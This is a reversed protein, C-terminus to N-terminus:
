KLLKALRAEVTALREAQQQPAPLAKYLSVQEELAAKLASTNKQAELIDAKLTMLGAKRPGYALGLAREVAQLAEDERQLKHFTRALYHPPNYDKPLAKERQQLLALADDPRELYLYTEALAWDYALAYADPEGKSGAELVKLRDQAATKAGAKDGLAERVDWLNRLADARDDVSLPAGEDAALKALLTEAAQRFPKVRADEPPLSEACNLAFAVFDTANATNGTENMATQGLDICAGFDKQRYLATIQSVRTASRRSWDAPAASLADAYQKAANAYDKRMALEDAEFVKLLPDNPPLEGKQAQEVAKSGDQLFGRLQEPSAAGLWRGVSVGSNPSVVYFTPWVEVPYQKLFDASEPRETNVSLFVFKDALEGLHKPKLIYSKMSICTHCWPAWLDVLVPRKTAKAEALAGAPDDEYWALEGPAAKKPEVTPAAPAAPAKAEPTQAAAQVPANTKPEGQCALALGLAALWLPRAVLARPHTQPAPTPHM